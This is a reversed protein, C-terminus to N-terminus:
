NLDVLFDHLILVDSLNEAAFFMGLGFCCRSVLVIYRIFMSYAM